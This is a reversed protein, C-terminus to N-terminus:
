CAPPSTAGRCGTSSAAPRRRPARRRHGRVRPGALEVGGRSGLRPDADGQPRPFAPRPGGPSTGAKRSGEPDYGWGVIWGGAPVKARAQYTRIAAITSPIDRAPGVPPGAVNVQNVMNLAFLFHSHADIFGPLMARGGLDRVRTAEGKRRLAEAKSGVFLIRGDKVAVAEAYTPAEGKMTLITGGHYIVDAVQARTAAAPLLWAAGVLAPVIPIELRTPM